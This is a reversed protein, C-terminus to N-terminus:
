KEGKEELYMGLGVIGFLIAVGLASGGVIILGDNWGFGLVLVLFLAVLPLSYLAYAAIKYKNVKM